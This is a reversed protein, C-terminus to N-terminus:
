KYPSDGLRCIIVAVCLMTKYAKDAGILLAFPQVTHNYWYNTIFLKLLLAFILKTQIMSAVIELIM